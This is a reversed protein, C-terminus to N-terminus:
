DNITKNFFQGDKYSLVFAGMSSWAQLLSGEKHIPSFFEVPTYNKKELNYTFWRYLPYEYDMNYMLKAYAYAASWYPWDGGNHYYLPYSSKLVVSENHKYYPFVSLTGFDGAHQEKNNKSELLREMNKLTKIARDKDCLGYLIVPVTDISLNDEIYNGEKFNIFYGLKEDWLIDNISDKVKIYMNKYKTSKEIFQKKLTMESLAYLARAYLAEDYTVYGPRFVNDCWDRRNFEGGKVLLGTSDACESLKNIVSEAADLITKGKWDEDLISYDQTHAVYDYLMIVFFSPSDYHNGWWNSFNYKVASPCNGDKNIGGALTIIENRVLQPKYPLVSLVTWYGDRYYTRAPFQYVVGALFGKFDGLSKYSSLSCNYLNKFYSKEFETFDGSPMPLSSSYDVSNKHYKDYDKICQVVDASSFDGRTGASMVYSVSSKKNAKVSVSLKFQNCFGDDSELKILEGDSAIDLYYDSKIHNAIVTVNDTKYYKVPKLSKIGYKIAKFIRGGNVSQELYSTKNLNFNIVIDLQADVKSSISYTNFVANVKDDLFQEVSIEAGNVTFTTLMTHGLMVVKKDSFFDTNVGNVSFLTYFERIIEWKNMVAYKSIGGLGDFQATISNNAVDYKVHEHYPASVCIAGDKFEISM